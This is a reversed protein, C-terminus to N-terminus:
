DPRDHRSTDIAESSAWSSAHLERLSLGVALWSDCFVSRRSSLPDGSRGQRWPNEHPRSRGTEESSESAVTTQIHHLLCRHPGLLPYRQRSPRGARVRIRTKTPRTGRGVNKACSPSSPKLKKFANRLGMRRNRVADAVTVRGTYLVSPCSTVDRPNGGRPDAQERFPGERAFPTVPVLRGM